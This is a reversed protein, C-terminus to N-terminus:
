SGAATSSSSSRPAASRRGRRYIDLRNREDPGYSLDRTVEITAPDMGKFMQGFMM